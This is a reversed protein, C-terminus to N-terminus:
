HLGGGGKGPGGGRKGPGGWDDRRQPDGVKQLHDKFSLDSQPLSIKLHRQVSGDHM